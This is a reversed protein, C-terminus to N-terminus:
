PSLAVGASAFWSLKELAVNVVRFAGGERRDVLFDGRGHRHTEGRTVHRPVREAAAHEAGSSSCCEKASPKWLHRTANKIRCTPSACIRRAARRRAIPNMGHTTSTSARRAVAGDAAGRIGYYMPRTGSTCHLDYGGSYQSYPWM